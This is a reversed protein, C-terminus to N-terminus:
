APLYELKLLGMPARSHGMKGSTAEGNDTTGGCGHHRGDRGGREGGRRIGGGGDGDGGVARAVVGRNLGRDGCRGRASDDGDLSAGVVALHGDRRAFGADRMWPAVPVAVSTTMVRLAACDAELAEPLAVTSFMALFVVM